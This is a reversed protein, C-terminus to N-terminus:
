KFNRIVLETVLGRGNPDSNIVRPAHVETINWIKDSYLARINETDSNSIMIQAGNTHWKLAADRLDAQDNKQFGGVAYNRFTEDYPPDIYVFADKPPSIKEFSQTKIETNQLASHCARINEVDMIGGTNLTGIPVNFRNKSNVRWLGNFCTKNLYLLRAAINIPNRLKHQNRIKYYYQEDHEKTHKRLASILADPEDRIAQWAHILDANVDCLTAKKFRRHKKLIHFFVAGGGVCPEWYNSITPPLLKDLQALLARKGGVWKVFPRPPVDSDAIDYIIADKSTQNQDPKEDSYHNPRIKHRM